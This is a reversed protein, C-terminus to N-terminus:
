ASRQFLISGALGAFAAFAVAILGYLIPHDFAFDYVLRDVGQREVTVRASQIALLQGERFLFVRADLPGVPINSPLKISARFLAPGIFAVAYDDRVYLGDKQKLRIAASKYDDLEEASILASKRTAVMRSRGFGIDLVSLLRPDALEDIPRTSAIAAYLPLAAFRISKTNIWLGGVRSKLRVVSPAGEGEVLVVIDYFGSEASVQRSNVVTGFIVIETGSFASTVAITRTSVDVEVKELLPQAPKAQAPDALPATATPIAGATSQPEPAIPMTRTQGAVPAPQPNTNPTQQAAEIPARWEVREAVPFVPPPRPMGYVPASACLLTLAAWVRWHRLTPNM